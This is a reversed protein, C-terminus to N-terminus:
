QNAERNRHSTTLKSTHSFWFVKVVKVINLDINELIDDINLSISQYIKLTKSKKEYIKIGWETYSEM